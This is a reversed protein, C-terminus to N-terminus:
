SPGIPFPIFLVDVEPVVIVVPAMLPKSVSSITEVIKLQPLPSSVGPEGVEGKILSIFM